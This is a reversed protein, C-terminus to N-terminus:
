SQLPPYYYLVFQKFKVRAIKVVQHLTLKIPTVLFILVAIKDNNPGSGPAAFQTPAWPPFGGGGM